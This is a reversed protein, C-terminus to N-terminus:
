SLWEHNIWPHGAVTFSYMDARPFQHHQFLYEANHLHWWIDPDVVSGRTMMFELTLLLFTLMTLFSFARRMQTSLRGASSMSKGLTPPAAIGHYSAKETDVAAGYQVTQVGSQHTFEVELHKDNGNTCDQHWYSARHGNSFLPPYHVDRGQMIQMPSRGAM